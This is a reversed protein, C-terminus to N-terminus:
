ACVKKAETKAVDSSSACAAGALTLLALSGAFLFHKANM